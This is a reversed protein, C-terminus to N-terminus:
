YLLYNPGYAIYNSSVAMPRKSVVTYSGSLIDVGARYVVKNDDVVIEGVMLNASDKVVRNLLMTTQATDLYDLPDSTPIVFTTSDPTSSVTFTTENFPNIPNLTRKAVINPFSVQDGVKVIFESSSQFTADTSNFSLPTVTLSVPIEVTHILVNSDYVRFVGGVDDYEYGGVVFSQIARREYVMGWDPNWGVEGTTTELGDTSGYKYNTGGAVRFGRKFVFTRHKDLTVTFIDKASSFQVPEYVNGNSGPTTGDALIPHTNAGDVLFHNPYAPLPASVGTAVVVPTYGTSHWVGEVNFEAVGANLRYLVPSEVVWGVVPQTSETVVNGQWVGYNFIGAQSLAGGVYLDTGVVVSLSDDVLGYNDGVLVSESTTVGRDFKVATNGEIFYAVRPDAVVHSANVNVGQVRTHVRGLPVSYIILESDRADLAGYQLEVINTQASNTSQRLLQSDFVRSVRNVGDPQTDTVTLNGEVNVVINGDGTYKDPLVVGKYHLVQDKSYLGTGDTPTSRLQIHDGVEAGGLISVNTASVTTSTISNTVTVNDAVVLNSDLNHTSFNSTTLVDTTADRIFAM